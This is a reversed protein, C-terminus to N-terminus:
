AQSAKLQKIVKDLWQMLYEANAVDMIVEVEVERVIGSRSQRNKEIEDGLTNPATRAYFAKNAIPFRESFFNMAVLGKPTPGGYIGDGHVVRFYHSKIYNFEIPSLAGEPVESSESSSPM